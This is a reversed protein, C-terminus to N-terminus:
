LIFKGIVLGGVMGCWFGLWAVKSMAKKVTEIQEPTAEIKDIM